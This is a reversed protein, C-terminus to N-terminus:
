DCRLAVLPDMRSARWSPVLCAALAIGILLLPISAFVMPDRPSIGYLLAGLLPSGTAAAVVGIAVGLLTWWVGQRVMHWLVAAHPAGLALRIGVEKTRQRALYAIVGYLGVSALVLAVVGTASALGASVQTLLLSSSVDFPELPSVALDPDLTRLEQRVAQLTAPSDSPIQVLLHVSDQNTQALPRYVFALPAEGVLGYTSNRALGVIEIPPGPQGGGYPRLRRGIASEGPFLRNALMENVIAVPASDASDGPTFDRGALLPIGLMRFHGSSVANSMIRAPGRKPDAPAEGDRVLSVSRYTMTMPLVNALNAARVGPIGDVRQLLQDYVIRQRAVDYGLADLDINATTFVHESRLGLNLAYAHLLGRTALGAAILLVTAIAVQGTMLTARLRSRRGGPTIARGQRAILAVDTSAQWAPLLGCVITTTLMLTLTFIVVRWDVKFELAISALPSTPSVAVLRPVARIAVVVLLCAVACAVTSLVATEALLQCVLRGRSAGLARRTAMEQQRATFRALLLGAVNMCGVILVFAVLSLMLTSFGTVTSEVEPGFTHAPYLFVQHGHEADRHEVGLQAELASLEAQAEAQTVHPKLRAILNVPRGQHRTEDAPLPAFGPANWPIWLAQSFPVFMTGIFAPPAVGVITFPHGNLAIMRGVVAPDADFRRRWVTDSLVTVGPAGPVDDSAVFLRGVAAHIGLTLFYNGSVMGGMVPTTENGVRLGLTGSDALGIMQFAAISSLTRSRDRYALYDVYPRSRDVLVGFAKADSSPEFYVRMLRTPDHLPLPTFLAANIVGFIGINSALVVALVTVAALTFGPARWLARCAYRLDQLLPDAFPLARADRHTEATVDVGGFAIRAARHAEEPSLGQRLFDEMSEALHSTIEDHLDRDLREARVLALMRMLWRRLRTM